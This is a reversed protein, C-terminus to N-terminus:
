KRSPVVIGLKELKQSDKGLAMRCIKILRSVWQELEKLATNREKTAQKALGKKKEQDAAAKEVEEMLKRGQELDKKTVAYRSLGTIVKPENLANTYFQRVDELWSDIRRKRQGSLALMQVAASDNSLAMRALELHEQYKKKLTKMKKQLVDTAEIKEGHAKSQQNSLKRARECLQLGEQFRAENYNYRAVAKKIDDSTMANGIVLEARGLRSGISFSKKAM